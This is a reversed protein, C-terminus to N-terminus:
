SSLSEFLFVKLQLFYNHHRPSCIVTSENIHYSMSCRLVLTRNRVWVWTSSSSLSLELRSSTECQQLTANNKVNKKVSYSHSSDKYLMKIDLSVSTSANELRVLKLTKSRWSAVSQINLHTECSYCFLNRTMEPLFPLVCGVATM